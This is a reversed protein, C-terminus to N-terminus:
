DIAVTECPSQYMVESGLLVQWVIGHTANHLAPPVDAPVFRHNAHGNGAVNTDITESPVTLAASSCSPDGIYLQLVVSYTTGPQAGLLVYNENAAVQPGNAHANILFGGGPTAPDVATLPIPPSHYTRDAYVRGSFTLAIGSLVTVAALVAFFRRSM